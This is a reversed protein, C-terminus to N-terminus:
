SYNDFNLVLKLNTCEGCGVTDPFWKIIGVRPMLMFCAPLGFFSTNRLIQNKSYTYERLKKSVPCGVSRERHFGPNRKVHQVHQPELLCSDWVPSALVSQSRCPEVQPCVLKTNVAHPSYRIIIRLPRHCNVIFSPQRNLRLTIIRCNM